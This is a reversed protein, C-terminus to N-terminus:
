YTTKGNKKILSLLFLNWSLGSQKQKKKLSEWTEESM